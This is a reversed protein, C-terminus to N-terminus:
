RLNPKQDWTYKEQLTASCVFPRQTSCPSRATLEVSAGQSTNSLVRRHWKGALVVWFTPQVNPNAWTCGKQKDQNQSQAESFTLVRRLCNSWSQEPKDLWLQPQPWLEWKLAPLQPGQLDRHQPQECHFNGMRFVNSTGKNLRKCKFKRAELQKFLM